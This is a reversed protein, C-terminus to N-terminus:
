FFGPNSRQFLDKSTVSLVLKVIVSATGGVCRHITAAAPPSGFRRVDPAHVIGILRGGPVGADAITQVGSPVPMTNVRLPPPPPPRPSVGAGAGPPAGTGGAGPWRPPPLPNCTRCTLSM